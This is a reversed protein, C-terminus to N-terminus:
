IGTRITSKIGKLAISSIGTGIMSKTMKTETVFIGIKAMYGIVKLGTSLNYKEDYVKINQAVILSPLCIALFLFLCAVVNAFRAIM